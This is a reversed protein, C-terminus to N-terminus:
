HLDTAFFIIIAAKPQLAVGNPCSSSVVVASIRSVGELVFCIGYARFGPLTPCVGERLMCIFSVLAGFASAIDLTLLGRSLQQPEARYFFVIRTTTTRSTTAIINETNSRLIVLEPSLVECNGGDHTIYIVGTIM